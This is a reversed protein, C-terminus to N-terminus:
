SSNRAYLLPIMASSSLTEEVSDILNWALEIERSSLFFIDDGNMVDLFLM